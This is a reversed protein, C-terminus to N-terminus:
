PWVRLWHLSEKFIQNLNPKSNNNYRIDSLTNTFSEWQESNLNKNAPLKTQIGIHNLKLGNKLYTCLQYVAEHESISNDNYKKELKKINRKNQGKNSYFLHWAFYLVVSLTIIITILILSIELSSLEPALPPQIDFIGDLKELQISEKNM